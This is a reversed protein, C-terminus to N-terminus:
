LIREFEAIKESITDVGHKDLYEIPSDCGQLHIDECFMENNKCYQRCASFNVYPPVLPMIVKFHKKLLDLQGNAIRPLYTSVVNTIGLGILKFYDEYSSVVIISKKESRIALNLSYLNNSRTFKDNNPYKYLQEKDTIYYDFCVVTGGEDITPIIISNRMKDCYNGKSSKTILNAKELQSITYSKQKTMYEIFCNFSNDHFGIGLQVITKGKIGWAHLQNIASKAKSNTKLQSHYFIAADRMLNNSSPKIEPLTIGAVSALESVAAKYDVKKTKMVYTIIDGGLSCAFCYFSNTEPYVVFSELKGCVPCKGHYNKGRKFLEQKSSIYSVIDNKSKIENIEDASILGKSNAM